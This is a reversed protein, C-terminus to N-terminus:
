PTLRANNRLGREVREATKVIQHVDLILAVSGDALITAGSFERAARYVRGLNKIVTQHEGIVRDVVFGVRSGGMEAIVIQEICPPEAKIEFMDRLVIYPVMEGRVNAIHRDKGGSAQRHSLEVCEAIASLPMVYHESGLEVLLGDIIALTLPLKLTITTGASRKSSIEVSGRLAEISKKVVDMGVGRGSVGSLRSATSFGPEFILSFIQKDSMEVGESVLGREVAKAYIAETDLGAGDDTIRILVSAGSHEASLGVKGVRPKGSAQRKDPAEIGHDISNRILHVLPDNLHEIVTKDLETEGGETELVVEKGLEKSLDRVLRKFKSFMTGIPLMRISMTNDRLEATLREVQEAIGMLETDSQLGAKQSLSAQITVLEGVLGVLNDLKRAAVRISGGTDAKKRKQRQQKVHEQEVLASEVAGGGVAEKEILIQGIRKQEKLAENLEEISLEGREVLIEGVKKYDTAPDDLVAEDISDIRIESGDEVFIFVDRITNVDKETTLIVDWYIYCSWADIQEITPIADTRSIVVCDGLGKLEELLLLPNVGRSFIDAAPRFRIRYTVSHGSGNAEVDLRQPQSKSEGDGLMKGLENVVREIAAQDTPNGDMMNRIQDCAELSLDVLHKSIATKGDRVLEFVSEVNHTFSAIDEFGCMAGSGKINHMARFVSNILETDQPSQELEMLSVELEGLLEHAEERFAEKLADM